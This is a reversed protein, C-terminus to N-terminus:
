SKWNRDLEILIRAKLARRIAAKKSRYARWFFPQARMKETGFENALAYDYGGRTTKPGGALVNVRMERRAKEVRISDVLNTTEGVHANARMVRALMEAQDFTEALVPAKLEAPLLALIRQLRSVSGNTAM